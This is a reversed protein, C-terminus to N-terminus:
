QSAKPPTSRAKWPNNGGIWIDSSETAEVISYGFNAIKAVSSRNQGSCILVNEAKVDGHVLDADHVVALGRAVDLCLAHKTGFDLNEQKNLLDALIGHQAYEVVIAPLKHAPSFPNSGWAFGLFDIINAHYFLPPYIM